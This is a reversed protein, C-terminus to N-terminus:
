LAAFSVAFTASGSGDVDWTARLYRRVTGTIEVRESGTATVQTFTAITAWTSDNASDEVIVDISTLSDYASVHLHAVGGLATSTQAAGRDYSSESDDATEAALDHLMVGQAVHGDGTVNLSFNAVGGVETGTEFTTKRGSALICPSGLSLGKPAYTVVGAVGADLATFTDTFGAADSWGEVSLEGMGLGAIFRKATDNLTTVDLMENGSLARAQTLKSSLENEGLLVRALQANSFSM